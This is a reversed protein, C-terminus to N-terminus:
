LPLSRLAIWPYGRLNRPGEPRSDAEVIPDFPSSGVSAMSAHTQLAQQVRMNIEAVKGPSDPTDKMTDEFAQTLQDVSPTSARSVVPDPLLVVGESNGQSSPM